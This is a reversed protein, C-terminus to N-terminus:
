DLVGLGRLIEKPTEKPAMLVNEIGEKPEDFKVFNAGRPTQQFMVYDWPAVIKAADLFTHGFQTLWYSHFEGYIIPRTRGFFAAGGQLFMVEAGEIDVKVLDCRDPLGKEKIYSDLPTIRASVNAKLGNSGGNGTVIAASGTTQSNDDELCLEVTGEETGLAVNHTTVISELKNLALCTRLREYNSPVPEFAQVHGEGLEQLRKGFAVSYFGVSAGVDFVVSGQRLCSTLRAIIDQEYEGTWYAWRELHSRMDVQMLSGDRMKVTVISDKDSTGGPLVRGLAVGLHSKGRFPPLSRYATAISDRVRAM